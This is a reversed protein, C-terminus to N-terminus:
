DDYNLEEKLKRWLDAIVDERKAYISQLSTYYRGKYEQYFGHVYSDYAESIYFGGDYYDVPPLVNLAYEYSEESIEKWYGCISDLYESYLDHFEDNSLVAFGKDLYEKETKEDFLIYYDSRYIGVKRLEDPNKVAFKMEM